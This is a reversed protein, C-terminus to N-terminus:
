LSLHSFYIIETEIKIVTLLCIVSRYMDDEGLVREQFLFDIIGAASGSNVVTSRLRQFKLKLAANSEVFM